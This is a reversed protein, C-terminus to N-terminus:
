QTKIVKGASDVEYTIDAPLPGKGIRTFTFNVMASDPSTTMKAKYRFDGRGLNAIRTMEGSGLKRAFHDSSNKLALAVLPAEKSAEDFAAPTFEFADPADQVTSGADCASAAGSLSAAILSSTCAQSGCIVDGCACVGQGTCSVNCKCKGSGACSRSSTCGTHCQTQAYADGLPSFGFAAAVTVLALVFLEKHLVKM